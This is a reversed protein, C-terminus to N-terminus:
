SGTYRSNMLTVLEKHANQSTAQKEIQLTYTHIHGHTRAHTCTLEFPALWRQATIVPMSWRGSSTSMLTVSQAITGPGGFNASNNFSNTVVGPLEGQRPFHLPRLHVLYLATTCWNPNETGNCVITCAMACRNRCSRQLSSITKSRM